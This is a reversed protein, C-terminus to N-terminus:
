QGAAPKAPEASTPRYDSLVARVQLKGNKHQEIVVPLYGLEPACWLTSVRSSNEAQHQIGVADFRGFPVKVTRKGINTVTLLKLEDGDLLAYQGGDTGNRLNQMLQYQISVRDQVPGSMMFEFEEDNIDGAVVNADWDFDFRITAEHSSLTDMSEYHRPRFGGAYPEFESQELISGSTLVAALGTPTIISRAMFAEGVEFVQTRMTGGLVSIKIKYEADYPVLGDAAQAGGAVLLAFLACGGSLCRLWCPFRM